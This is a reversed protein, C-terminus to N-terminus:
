VSYNCSKGGNPVSYLYNDYVLLKAKSEPADLAVADVTYGAKVAKEVLPAGMIGTGGIVLIKEM